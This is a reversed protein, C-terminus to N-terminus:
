GVYKTTIHNRNFRCIKLDNDTVKEPFDKLM